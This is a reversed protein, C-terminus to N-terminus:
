RHYGHKKTLYNLFLLKYSNNEALFYRIIASINHQFFISFIMRKMIIPSFEFHFLALVLNVEATIFSKGFILCPM